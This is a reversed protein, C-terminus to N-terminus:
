VSSVSSTNGLELPELTGLDETKLIIYETQLNSFTSSEYCMTCSQLYRVM